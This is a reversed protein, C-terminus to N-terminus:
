DEKLGSLEQQEKKSKMKRIAPILIFLDVIICLAWSIPYSYFIMIYTPNLLYFSNLWIIRFVCVFLVSIIMATTSKGIGRLSYNLVDMINGIFFLLGMFTIREKAIRIVEYDKTMIGFLQESFLVLLAGFSIVSVIIMLISQIIVKKIRDPLKAGYNQSVFSMSALAISSGLIAVAGEYQQAITNAAM